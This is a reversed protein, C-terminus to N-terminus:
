GSYLLGSVSHGLSLSSIRIDGNEDPTFGMAALTDYNLQLTNKGKMCVTVTYAVIKDADKDFIDQNSIIACGDEAARPTLNMVYNNPCMTFEKNDFVSLVNLSTTAPMMSGNDYSLFAVAGLALTAGIAMAVKVPTSFFSSTPPEAILPSAENVESEIDSM